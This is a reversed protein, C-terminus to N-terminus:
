ATGKPDACWSHEGQETELHKVLLNSGEQKASLTVRDGPCGAKGGLVMGETDWPCHKWSPAALRFAFGLGPTRRVTGSLASPM